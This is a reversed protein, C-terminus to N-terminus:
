ELVKFVQVEQTGFSNASEESDFYVFLNPSDTELSQVQRIGVNEVWLLTGEPIVNKSAFITVEANSRMRPYVKQPMTSSVVGQATYVGLDETVFPFNYFEVEKDVVIEVERKVIEIKPTKTVIAVKVSEFDVDDAFVDVSSERALIIGSVMMFTSFMVITIWIVLVSKNRLKMFSVGKMCFIKGCFFFNTLFFANVYFLLVTLETFM